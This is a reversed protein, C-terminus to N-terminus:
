HSIIAEPYQTKESCTISFVGFPFESDGPAQINAGGPFENEDSGGLLNSIRTLLAIFKSRRM